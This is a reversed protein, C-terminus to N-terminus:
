TNNGFYNREKDKWMAACAALSLYAKDPADSGLVSHLYEEILTKFEATPEMSLVKSFIWGKDEFGAFLRGSLPMGVFGLIGALIWWTWFTWVDGKLLCASVTALLVAVIVKPMIKKM